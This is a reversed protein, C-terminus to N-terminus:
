WSSKDSSACKLLIFLLQVCHGFAIFPGERIFETSRETYFPIDLDKNTATTKHTIPSLQGQLKIRTTVLLTHKDSRQYSTVQESELCFIVM